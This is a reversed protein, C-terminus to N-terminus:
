RPAFLSLKMQNRTMKKPNPNLYREIEARYMYHACITRVPINPHPRRRIVRRFLALYFDEDAEFPFGMSLRILFRIGM